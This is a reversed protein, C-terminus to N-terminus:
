RKARAAASRAARRGMSGSSAARVRRKPTRSRHARPKPNRKLYDVLYNAYWAAKRYDELEPGKKGARATYKCIQFRMAGIFEERTMWAQMVKIVEYPNDPGGYHAPHNVTEKM